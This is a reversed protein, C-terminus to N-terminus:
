EYEEYDIYAGIQEEKYTGVMLGKQVCGRDLVM